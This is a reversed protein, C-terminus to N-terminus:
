PRLDIGASLYIYVSIPNLQSIWLFHWYYVPNWYNFTHLWIVCIFTCVIAFAYECRRDTYLSHLYANPMRLLNSVYTKCNIRTVLVKEWEREREKDGVIDSDLVDTVYNSMYFFFILILHMILKSRLSTSRLEDDLVLTTIERFRARAKEQIRFGFGDPQSGLHTVM